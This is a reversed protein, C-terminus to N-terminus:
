KNREDNETLKRDSAQVMNGVGSIVGWQVDKLSSMRIGMENGVQECSGRLLQVMERSLMPGIVKIKGGLYIQM